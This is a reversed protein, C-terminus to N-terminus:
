LWSNKPIRSNGSPKMILYPNKIIKVSTEFKFEDPLNYVCILWYNDGLEKAKNTEMETFNIDRPSSMGKVEFIIDCHECKVDFGEGRRITTKPQHGMLTLKCEAISYAAQEIYEKNPNDGFDKLGCKEFISRLTDNDDIIEYYKEHPLHINIPKPPDRTLYSNRVINTWDHKGLKTVINTSPQFEGHECIMFNFTPSKPSNHRLIITQLEIIDDPFILNNPIKSKDSKILNLFEIIKSIVIDTSNEIPIETKDALEKILNIDIKPSVLTKDELDLLNNFRKPIQIKDLSNDLFYVDKPKHFENDIGLIFKHAKVPLSPSSARDRGKLYYPSLKNISRHFTNLSNPTKAITRLLEKRIDNYKTEFLSKSDMFIHFIYQESGEFRLKVLGPNIRPDARTKNFKKMVNDMTKIDLLNEFNEDVYFIDDINRLEGNIDPFLKNEEIFNKIEQIVISFVGYQNGDYYFFGNPYFLEFWSYRWVHHKTLEPICHETFFPTIKSLIFKNWENEDPNLIQLRGLTTLLDAQIYFPLNIDLERYTIFSYMFFHFTGKGSSLNDGELQFAIKLVTTNKNKIYSARRYHSQYDWNETNIKDIPIEGTFVVYKHEVSNNEVSHNISIIKNENIRSTSILSIGGEDEISIKELNNLFLLTRETIIKKITNKLLSIDINRRLKLIFYTEEDQVINCGNDYCNNIEVPYVMWPIRLEPNNDMMSTNSFKFHFTGSHIEIEDALVFASKFGVGFEGIMESSDIKNSLGIRSIALFDDHNFMRGNNMFVIQNKYIKFLCKSSKADEANQIFEPLFNVNDSIAQLIASQSGVLLERSESNTWEQELKKRRQVIERCTM